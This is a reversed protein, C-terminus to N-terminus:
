KEGKKRMAELNLDYKKLCPASLHVNDDTKSNDDINFNSNNRNNGDKSWTM